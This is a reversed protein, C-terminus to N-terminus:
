VQFSNAGLDFKANTVDEERSLFIPEYTAAIMFTSNPWMRLGLGGGWSSTPDDISGGSQNIPNMVNDKWDGMSHTDFTGFVEGGGSMALAPAAAFAVLAIVGVAVLRLRNM